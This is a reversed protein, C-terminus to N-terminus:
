RLRNVAIFIGLGIAVLDVIRFIIIGSTATFQGLPSFVGVLYSLAIFVGAVVALGIGRKRNVSMSVAESIIYGAGPGLLLNMYFSSTLDLMLGWLIGYAIATGLAAGAARLYYVASVNYTPVKHVRACDPCRAGVPTQVMCRPCIPRGCRACALSTEVNHSPCNM